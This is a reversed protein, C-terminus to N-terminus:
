IIKKELIDWFLGNELPDFGLISEESASELVLSLSITVFECLLPLHCKNCYINYRLIHM